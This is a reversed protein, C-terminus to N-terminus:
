ESAGHASCSLALRDSLNCLTFSSYNNTSMSKQTIEDLAAKNAACLVLFQGVPEFRWAPQQVEAADGALAEALVAALEEPPKQHVIPDAAEPQAQPPQFLADPQEQPHQVLAEPQEQPPQVDQWDQQAVDQWESDQWDQWESDQWDQWSSDKQWPDEHWDTDWSSQANTKRRKYQQHTETKLFREHQERIKNPDFAHGFKRAREEARKLM